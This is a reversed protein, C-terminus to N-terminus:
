SPPPCVRQIEEGRPVPLLNPHPTIVASEPLHQNIVTLVGYLNELIDNNWFRVVKYGIKELFQTRTADKEIQIGHQGGDCEIVLKHEICAYDTIYPGLPHQRRFKVSFFRRDRLHYWLLKEAETMNKRLKRATGHTKATPRTQM